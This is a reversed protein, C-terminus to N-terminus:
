EFRSLAKKFSPLEKQTSFGPIQPSYNYAWSIINLSGDVKGINHFPMPHFCADQEQSSLGFWDLFNEANIQPNLLLDDAVFIYHTYEEKYYENLGQPIFSHFYFSNDYVPIVNKRKKGEYFPMLHYIDKFRKGHIRELPDINEPYCHNYIFILAPNIM